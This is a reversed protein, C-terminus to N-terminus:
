CGNTRCGAADYSVDLTLIAGSCVAGTATVTFTTAGASGTEGCCVSATVSGSLTGPPVTTPGTTSFPDDSVYFYEGSSPATCPYIDGSPITTTVTVTANGTNSLSFSATTGSPVAGAPCSTETVTAPQTLSLNAGIISNSVSVSHKPNVPENTTFTLMEQTIAGGTPGPLGQITISAKGNAPISTPASIVVFVTGSGPSVSVTAPAQGTNTLTITAQEGVSGCTTSLPLGTTSAVAVVPVEGVATLDLAQLPASCVPTTTTVDLTGTAPAAASNNTTPTFSATGSVPTGGAAAVDADLSGSFNAGTVAVALGEAEVNGTNTVSFPLTGTTNQVPGFATSAMTLALFAGSASEQLPITFPMMGAGSPTITLTDDYFGAALNAVPLPTPIPKPTVTIMAPTGSTATGTLGGSGSTAGPSALTFPSAAGLALAATYPVDVSGMNQITVTQPAAQQGCSVKDFDLPSPGVNLPAATGTGSFAVSTATSACLAGTVQIAATAMKMGASTPAFTASAGVLNAGAAVTASTTAGAQGLLPGGDGQGSATGGDGQEDTGVTIAFEPDTPTGFSVTVAENGVNKLTIPLASNSATGIQQQGFGVVSQGLVLSGGQPTVSLPVQVETYGPVNTTVTLTGTVPVGPASTTAVSVGLFVSLKEGPALMGSAPTPSAITFPATITASWTVAVPGSNDISYSESASSGCDTLGFDILDKSLAVSAFTAGADGGDSGFVPMAADGDSHFSADPTANITSQGFCGVLQAVSPALASFILASRARRM